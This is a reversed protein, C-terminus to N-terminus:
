TADAAPHGDVDVPFRSPARKRLSWLQAQNDAGDVALASCAAGAGARDCGGCETALGDCLSLAGDDLARDSDRGMRWTDWASVEIEALALLDRMLQGAFFLGTATGHGLQEPDIVRGPM